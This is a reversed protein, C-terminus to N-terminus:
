WHRAQDKTRPLPTSRILVAALLALLVLASLALCAGILPLGIVLFWFLAGHGSSTDFEVTNTQTVAQAGTANATYIITVKYEVPYVGAIDNFLQTGSTLAFQVFPASDDTTNRRYWAYQVPTVVNSYVVTLNAVGGNDHGILTAAFSPDSTLGIQYPNYVLETLSSSGVSTVALNAGSDSIVTRNTTSSSTTSYAEAVDDRKSLVAPQGKFYIEVDVTFFDGPALVEATHIVARSGGPNTSDATVTASYALASTILSTNAPLLLVIDTNFATASGSNTATVAVKVFFLLFTLM